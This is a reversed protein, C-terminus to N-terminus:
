FRFSRVLFALAGGQMGFRYLAPNGRGMYCFVDSVVGM